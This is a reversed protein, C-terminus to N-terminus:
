LELIVPKVASFVFGRRRLEAALMKTPFTQLLMEMEAKIEEKSIDAPEGPKQANEAGEASKQDPQEAAPKLVKLRVKRGKKEPEEAKAAAAAAKKAPVGIKAAQIQLVETASLVRLQHAKVLDELPTAAGEGTPVAQCFSNIYYSTGSEDAVYCHVTIAKGDKDKLTTDEGSKM